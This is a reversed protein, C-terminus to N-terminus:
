LSIVSGYGGDHDEDEDEDFMVQQQFSSSSSSSSSPKNSKDSVPVSKYAGRPDHQHHHHHHNLKSIKAYSGRENNEAAISVARKYCPHMFCAPIILLFCMTKLSLSPFIFLVIFTTCGTAM